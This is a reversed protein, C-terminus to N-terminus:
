LCFLVTHVLVVFLKEPQALYCRALRKIDAYTVSERHMHDWQSRWGNWSDRQKAQKVAAKDESRSSGVFRRAFQRWDLQTSFQLHKGSGALQLQVHSQRLKSHHCVSIYYYYYYCYCCCYCNVVVHGM